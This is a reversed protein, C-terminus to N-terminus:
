RMSSIRDLMFSLKTKNLLHSDLIFFVSRHIDYFAKQLFAEIDKDQTHPNALLINRKYDRYIESRSIQKLFVTFKESNEKIVCYRLGQNTNATLDPMDECQLGIKCLIESIKSPVDSDSQYIAEIEKIIKVDSDQKLIEKKIVELHADGFCHKM